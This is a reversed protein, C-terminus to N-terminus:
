SDEKLWFRSFLLWLPMHISGLVCMLWGCEWNGRVWHLESLTASSPCPCESWSGPTRRPCCRSVWCSHIANFGSEPGRTMMRCTGWGKKWMFRGCFASFLAGSSNSRRGKGSARPAGRCLLVSTCIQGLTDLHKSLHMFQAAAATTGPQRFLLDRSLKTSFLVTVM